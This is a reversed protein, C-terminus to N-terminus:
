ILNFILYYYNQLKLKTKLAKKIYNKEDEQKFKKFNFYWRRHILFFGFWTKSFKSEKIDTFLPIYKIISISIEYRIHKYMCKNVSKSRIIIM